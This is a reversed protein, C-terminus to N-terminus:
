KVRLDILRPAHQTDHVALMIKETLTEIIYEMECNVMTRPLSSIEIKVRVAIDGGNGTITKCRKM